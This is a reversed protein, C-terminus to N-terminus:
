EMFDNDERVHSPEVVFDPIKAPAKFCRWDCEAKNKGKLNRFLFRYDGTSNNLLETFSKMDWCDEGYAEYAAEMGKKSTIRFLIVQWAGERIDAAVRNIWNAAVILWINYHTPRSAIEVILPDRLSNFEAEIVLAALPRMAKPIKLQQEVLNMVAHKTKGKPYQKSREGPWSTFKFRSPVFILNGEDFATKSIAMVYDIKDRNEYVIHKICHSKGEQSKSNAVFVGPISLPMSEITASREDRKEM